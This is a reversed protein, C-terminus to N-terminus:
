AADGHVRWTGHSRAYEALLLADAIAHTVKVAPFLRQATAKTVNKDGRSLCGLAAQWKRPTVLDRRLEAWALSAKLVGFSVGFKFTSSVGQKPMAHVQELAAGVVEIRGHFASSFGLLKKFDAVIDDESADKFVSFAVLRGDDTIIAMGGSAGPDVGLYARTPETDSM